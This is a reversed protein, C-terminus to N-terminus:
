KHSIDFGNSEFTIQCSESAFCFIALVIFLAPIIQLYYMERRFLVFYFQIVLDFGVAVFLSFSTAKLPKLAFFTYVSFFLGVIFIFITEFSGSFFTTVAQHVLFIILCSLICKKPMRPNIGKKMCIVGNKLVIFIGFACVSVHLIVNSIVTLYHPGTYYFMCLITSLPIFVLSLVIQLVLYLNKRECIFLVLLLVSAFAYVLCLNSITPASNYHFAADCSFFSQFPVVVGNSSSPMGLFFWKQVETKPFWISVSSWFILLANAVLYVCKGSKIGNLLSSSRDFCLLYGVSCFTCLTSAVLLTMRQSVVFNVGYLSFVMPVTLLSSIYMLYGIGKALSKNKLSEVLATLFLAFFCIILLFGPNYFLADRQFYVFFSSFVIFSAAFIFLSIIKLHGHAHKYCTDAINLSLLKLISSAINFFCCFAFSIIYSPYFPIGKNMGKEIFFYVLICINIFAFVLEPVLNRKRHSIVDLLSFVVTSFFLAHSSYYIFSYKLGYIGIFLSSRLFLNYVIPSYEGSALRISFVVPTVLILLAFFIRLLVLSDSFKKLFVRRM